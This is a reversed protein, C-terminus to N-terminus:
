DSIKEAPIGLSRRSTQKAYHFVSMCVHIMEWTLQGKANCTAGSDILVDFLAIEVGRFILTRDLNKDSKAQSSSWLFHFNPVISFRDPLNKTTIGRLWLTQKKRGEVVVVVDEEVVM